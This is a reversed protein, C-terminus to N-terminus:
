RAGDLDNPLLKMLFPLGDGVLHMRLGSCVIREVLTEMVLGSIKVLQCGSHWTLTLTLTLDGISKVGCIFDTPQLPGYSSFDFSQM